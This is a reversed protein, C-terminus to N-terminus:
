GDSDGAPNGKSVIIRKATVPKGDVHKTVSPVPPATIRGQVPAGNKLQPVSVRKVDAKGDREAGDARIAGPPVM